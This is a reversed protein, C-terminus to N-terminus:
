YKQSKSQILAIFQQFEPSDNSKLYAIGYYIIKPYDLNVTHIFRSRESYIYKPLFCIGLGAKVMVMASQINNARILRSHPCAQVAQRQLKVLEPGSNSDAIFVLPYGDLKNLALKRKATLNFDSPILARFGGCGIPTFTIAKYDAVDDQTTFIFDITKDQLDRHLENHQLNQIYFHVNPNTATFEHILEPVHKSEYPTATYGIRLSQYHQADASKVQSVANDYALLVSEIQQAFAHGEQTFRVVKNNRIVLKVGLNNELSDVIKSVAPQTVGAQRATKTFSLTKSLDVFVRLHEIKLAM